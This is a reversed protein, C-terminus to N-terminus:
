KKKEINLIIFSCASLLMAFMWATQILAAIACILLMLAMAIKM